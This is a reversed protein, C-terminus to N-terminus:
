SLPPSKIQEGLNEVRCVGRRIAYEVVDRANSGPHWVYAIMCDCHEAMYRNAKMIALRWPIREMGQPYLRNDFGEPLEVFREQPHYPILLLLVIHPYKRKMEAVVRAAMRDFSGYHGVVFEDVGYEVIHREVEELLAAYVAQPTDRHGILFCSKM